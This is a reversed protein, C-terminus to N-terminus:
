PRDDETYEHITHSDEHLAIIIMKPGIPHGMWDELSPNPDGNPHSHWIAELNDMRWHEYAANAASPSMAFRGPSDAHNVCVQIHGDKLLLGCAEWDGQEAADKAALVASEWNAM